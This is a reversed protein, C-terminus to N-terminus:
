QPPASVTIHTPVARISSRTFSQRVLELGAQQDQNKEPCDTRSPGAIAVLVSAFDLRWAALVELYNSRSAM